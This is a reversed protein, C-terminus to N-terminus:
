RSFLKRWWSQKPVPAAASGIEIAEGGKKSLFKDVGVERLMQIIKSRTEPALNLPKGAAIETGMRELTPKDFYHDSMALSIALDDETAPVANCKECPNFAGWKMAGCKWCVAVTM